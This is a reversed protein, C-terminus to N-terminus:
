RLNNINRGAIKIGAQAEDLGANCMIYETYLNFLCLSLRCGQHVEKRIQYRDTTGHGDLCYIPEIISICHFSILSYCQFMYIVMSLYIVLEICSVPCEFCTSQSVGSAHPSSPPSLPTLIIPCTYMWPQNM